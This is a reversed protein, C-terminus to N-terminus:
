FFLRYASELWKSYEAKLIVIFDRAIFQSILLSNWLTEAKRWPENWEIKISLGM